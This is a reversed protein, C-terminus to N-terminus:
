EAKVKKSALLVVLWQKYVQGRPLCSLIGFFKINSLMLINTFQQYELVLWNSQIQLPLEAAFPMM